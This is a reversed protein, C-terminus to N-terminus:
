GERQPWPGPGQDHPITVLKSLEAVVDDRYGEGAKDNDPLIIVETGALPAWDTKKATNPGGHASTTGALKLVAVIDACKEGEVLFVWEPASTRM